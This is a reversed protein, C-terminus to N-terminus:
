MRNGIKTPTSHGVVKSYITCKYQFQVRDFRAWLHLLSLLIFMVSESSTLEHEPYVRIRIWIGM